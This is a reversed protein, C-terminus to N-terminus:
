GGQRVSQWYTDPHDPDFLTDTWFLTVLEDEGTNTINHTWMTPMDIVAPASGNVHFDLIDESFLRRLSIRAQGSVVAFREIKALHYHEGRTIGPKTTSVFTQGSGGHQRVTEVLWGRDDAHPTLGIPYHAPFLAARLTNFLCVDLKDRLAPIEGTRYVAMFGQLRDLVDAVTTALPPPSMLQQSTTLADILAQAADQAHMVTIARDNVEAPATGAAVAHAFTAVFSNYEPRGHEGFLHPFTVDVFRGGIDAASRELIRAAAAKGRGYSTESSAHITNTYILRTSRGAARVASAVDEALRMNAAEAEPAFRNMAATHVVADAGAVATPLDGWTARTIPVVEHDTLSALRARTHWGLFGDAGTLVVKM